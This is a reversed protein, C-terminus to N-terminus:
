ALTALIATKVTDFLPSVESSAASSSDAAPYPPQVARFQYTEHRGLIRKAYANESTVGINPTVSPEDIISEAPTEEKGLRTITIDLSRTAYNSDECRATVTVPVGVELTKDETWVWGEPLGIGSVAEVEYPVQMNDAPANPDISMKEVILSITAAAATYADTADATITFTASGANHITVIGNEDVTAVNEDSSSYKLPAGSNVAANLAFPESKYQKVLEDSEVTISGALQSNSVIEHLDAKLQEDQMKCTRRNYIQNDAPQSESYTIDWLVPCMGRTYAAECTATFYDRASTGTKKSIEMGACCEGIIVPIGNDAFKGRVMDELWM